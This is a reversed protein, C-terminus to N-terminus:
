LRLELAAQVSQWKFEQVASRQGIGIHNLGQLYRASLGLHSTLLLDLGATAGLSREETDHTITTNLSGTREEAQILVDAQPGVLLALRSAVRYRLLLPLSLYRLTYRSGGTMEGSLQTFLYEQRVALPQSLSLEVWAGAVVGPRWTTEIPVVPPPYGQNFNTNSYTAGLRFGVAVALQRSSAAAPDRRPPSAAPASRPVGYAMLQAQALAPGSAFLGLVLM